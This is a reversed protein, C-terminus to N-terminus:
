FDIQWRVIVTSIVGSQGAVNVPSDEVDAMVYDVMMRTNPNWYWNFGLTFSTMEGGNVNADSLDTMDFRFALELAGSGEEKSWFNSKPKTRGWSGKKTDFKRPEGTIFWGVQFYMGFFTPDEPDNVMSATASYVETQAHIAGMRFAIEINYRIDSEADVDGTNIYRDGFSDPRARYRVQQPGRDSTRYNQYTIAAGIWLTMDKDKNHVIAWGWRGTFGLGGQGRSSGAAGTKVFVGGHLIMRAEKFAGFWSIGGDRSPAFAQTSAARETFTIYKSSTMEGLSFPQKFHGFLLDGSGLKKMSIYVDKFVVAGGAFDLQLKFGTKDHISGSFYLRTRRFGTRNENLDTNATDFEASDASSANVDFMIRGGFKIKVSGDGSDMRLGEKWYVRFTKADADAGATNELYHEVEQDLASSSPSVTETANAVGGVIFLSLVLRLCTRSLINM